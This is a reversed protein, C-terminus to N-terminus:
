GDPIPLDPPSREPRSPMTRFVFAPRPDDAAHGGAQQTLKITEDRHSLAYRLAKSQARSIASRTRRSARAASAPRSCASGCSTRGPMRAKSCCRLSKSSPLPLYENSVVAPM